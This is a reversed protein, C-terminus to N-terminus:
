APAEAGGGDHLQWSVLHAVGTSRRLEELVIALYLPEFWEKIFFNRALLHTTRGEIRSCATPRFGLEFTTASVKGSLAELAQTWLSTAEDTAPTGPTGPMSSAAPASPEAQVEGLMSLQVASETPLESFM